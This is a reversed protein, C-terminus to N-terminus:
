QGAGKTLRAQGVVVASAATDSLVQFKYGPTALLKFRSQDLPQSTKTALAVYAVPYTVTGNTVQLTIQVTSASPNEVIVYDLKMTFGDPCKPGTGGANNVTLDAATIGVPSAITGAALTVYDADHVDDEFASGSYASSM